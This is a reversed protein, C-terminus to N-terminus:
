AAHHKNQETVDDSMGGMDVVVFPKGGIHPHYAGWGDNAATRSILDGAGSYRDMDSLLLAELMVPKRIGLWEPAHRTATLCHLLAEYHAHPLVIKYQAMAAAIWEINTIRHGLLRGRDTMQWAGTPGIRYDEAKGADHLLGGLTALAVNAVSQNRCHEQMSHAVEMAHQLNGNDYNHHRNLSSPGTCFRRFRGGDWFIANFLHRHGDPLKSILSSGRKVLERDGVWGSPILEFLNIKPEPREIKVLRSIDIAGQSSSVVPRSKWRPSVLDNVRPQVAKEPMVWQVKLAAKEHFLTATCCVGKQGDGRVTMSTLRYIAPLMPLDPNM